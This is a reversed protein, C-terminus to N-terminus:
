YQTIFYDKIREKLQEWSSFESDKIKRNRGNIKKTAYFIGYWNNGIMQGYQWIDFGRFNGCYHKKKM